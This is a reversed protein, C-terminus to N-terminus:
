GHRAGELHRALARRGLALLSETAAVSRDLLAAVERVPLDDVYRFVLAARQDAPLEGLARLAEGTGIADCDPESADDTM